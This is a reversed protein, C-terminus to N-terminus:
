KIPSNWSQASNNSGIISVITPIASAVSIDCTPNFIAVLFHDVGSFQDLGNLIRDPSLRTNKEDREIISNSLPLM